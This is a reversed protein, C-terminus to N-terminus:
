SYNHCHITATTYIILTVIRNIVGITLIFVRAPFMDIGEIVHAMLVTESAGRWTMAWKFSAYIGTAAVTVM